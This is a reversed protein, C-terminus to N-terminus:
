SSPARVGVAGLPPLTRRVGTGAGAHLDGGRARASRRHPRAFGKAAREDLTSAFEEAPRPRMARLTLALESLPEHEGGMERGALAADLADLESQQATSLPTQEPKKM